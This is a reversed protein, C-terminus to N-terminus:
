YTIYPVNLYVTSEAAAIAKRQAVNLGPCLRLLEASRENKLAFSHAETISSPQSHYGALTCPLNIEISDNLREVDTETLCTPRPRRWAYAKRFLCPSMRIDTGMRSEVKQLRPRIAPDPPRAITSQTKPFWIGMVSERAIDESSVDCAASARNSVRPEHGCSSYQSSKARSSKSVLYHAASGSQLTKTRPITM